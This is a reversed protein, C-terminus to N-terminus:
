DNDGQMVLLLVYGVEVIAQLRDHFDVALGELEDQDVVARAVAGEVQQALNSGDVAPDRNDFEAAVKSM